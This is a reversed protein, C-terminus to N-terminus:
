TVKAQHVFSGTLLTTLMTDLLYGELRGMCGGEQRTESMTYEGIHRKLTSCHIFYYYYVNIMSLLNYILVTIIFFHTRYGGIGNFLQTISSLDHQKRMEIVKKGYSILPQM